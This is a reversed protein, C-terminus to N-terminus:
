ARRRTPEQSLPGSRAPGRNLHAAPGLDDGGLEDGLAAARCLGIALVSVVVVLAIILGIIILM